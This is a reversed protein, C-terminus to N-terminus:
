VSLETRGVSLPPNIDWALKSLMFELALLLVVTTMKVITPSTTAKTNVKNKMM